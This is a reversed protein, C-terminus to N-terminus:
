QKNLARIAEALWPADQWLGEMKEVEQAIREITAAEIANREAEAKEAREREEEWCKAWYAASATPRFEAELERIRAAACIPCMGDACAAERVDIDHNCNELEAPFMQDILDSM